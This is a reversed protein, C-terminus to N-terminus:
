SSSDSSSGSGPSTAKKEEATADAHAKIAADIEEFSEPDLNRIAARTVPVDKGTSENKASWDVLYAEVRAFAMASWDVDVENQTSGERQSVRKFGASKYARDEGATLTKKVEIWQDDSLPLRVTESSVFRM